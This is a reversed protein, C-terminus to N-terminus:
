IKLEERPHTLDVQIPARCPNPGNNARFIIKKFMNVKEEETDASEADHSM